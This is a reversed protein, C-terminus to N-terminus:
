LGVCNKIAEAIPSNALQEGSFPVFSNGLQYQTQGNKYLINNLFPVGNICLHTAICINQFYTMDDFEFSIFIVIAVANLTLFCVQLDYKFLCTYDYHYM